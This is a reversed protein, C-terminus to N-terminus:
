YNRYQNADNITQVPEGPQQIVRAVGAGIATVLAGWGLAAKLWEPFDETFAFPLSGYTIAATQFIATLIMLRMSWWRKWNKVDPVLQVPSSKLREKLNLM